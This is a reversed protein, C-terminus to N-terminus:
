RVTTEDNYPGIFVHPIGSKSSMVEFLETILGLPIDPNLGFKVANENVIIHMSFTVEHFEVRSVDKRPFSTRYDTSWDQTTNEFGVEDRNFVLKVRGVRKGYYHDLVVFAQAGVYFLLIWLIPFVATLNAFIVTFFFILNGFFITKFLGRKGLLHYEIFAFNKEEILKPTIM